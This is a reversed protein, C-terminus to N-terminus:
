SIPCVFMLGKDLKKIEVDPMKAKILKLAERPLQRELPLIEGSADLFHEEALFLNADHMTLNFKKSQFDVCIFLRPAMASERKRALLALATEELISTLRILNPTPLGIAKGLRSAKHILQLTQDMNEVYHSVTPHATYSLSLFVEDDASRFGLRHKRLNWLVFQHFAAHPLHRFRSILLQLDQDTFVPQEPHESLIGDTYFVLKDGPSLKIWQRSVLAEKDLDFLGIPPISHDLAFMTGSSRQIFLPRPHACNLYELSGTANHLRATFFTAYYGLERFNHNWFEDLGQVMAEITPVQALINDLFSFTSTSILASSIGHGSVDGVLIYSYDGILQLLVIDGGISHHARFHLSTDLNPSVFDSPINMHLIQESIRLDQEMQTQYVELQQSYNKLIEYDRARMIASALENALTNMLELDFDDFSDPRDAQVDLVGLVNTGQMIPVALESLAEIRDPIEPMYRPDERIDRAYYTEHTKYAYGVCGDSPSVTLPLPIENEFSGAMARLDLTDKEQDYIFIYVNYYLFYDKLLRATSALLDDLNLSMLAKETIQHLLRMQLLRKDESKRNSQSTFALAVVSLCQEIYRLHSEEVPMENSAFSFAGLLLTGQLMPAIYVTKVEGRIIELNGTLQRLEDAPYARVRRTVGSVLRNGPGSGVNLQFGIHNNPSHDGALYTAQLLGDAANYQWFCSSATNLRVKAVEFLLDYVASIDQSKSLIRLVEELFASVDTLIRERPM